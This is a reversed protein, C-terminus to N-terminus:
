IARALYLAMNGEGVIREKEIALNSRSILTPLGGISKFHRYGRFHRRGAAIESTLIIARFWWGRLPRPKGVHFDTLLIRGDGKLVRCMEDLVLGREHDEMEHLVLTALVLDFKDSGYPLQTADANRLDAGEGLRERAVALMSPSADVGHLQCGFKRYMELHIGTGCGVDLISGGRPPMYMRFALVRLGSNMPEFIRDYFGAVRQYPDSSM